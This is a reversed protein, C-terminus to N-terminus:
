AGIVFEHFCSSALSKVIHMCMITEIHKDDKGGMKKLEIEM